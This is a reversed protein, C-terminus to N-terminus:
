RFSLSFDFEGNFGYGEFGQIPWGLVFILGFVLNAALGMGSSVLIPHMIRQAFFFQALQSFGVFGPIALSLVKSYYGAMKSIEPDSGLWLWVSETLSWTLFVFFSIFALVVYSVQLYIGALKPNGAGVAGGVQTPCCVSVRGISYSLGNEAITTCRSEGHKYMGLRAFCTWRFAGSDDHDV